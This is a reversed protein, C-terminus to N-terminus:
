RLLILSVEFNYDRIEKYHCALKSYEQSFCEVWLPLCRVESKVMFEDKRVHKYMDLVAKPFSKFDGSKMQNIINKIESEQVNKAKKKKKYVVTAKKTEIRRQYGM